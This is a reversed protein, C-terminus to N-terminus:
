AKSNNTSYSVLDHLDHYNIKARLAHDGDSPKSNPSHCPCFSHLECVRNVKMMIRIHTISESLSVVGHFSVEPSRCAEKMKLRQRGKQEAGWAGTMQM